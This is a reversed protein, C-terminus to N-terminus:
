LEYGRGLLPYCDPDFGVAYARATRAQGGLARPKVTATERDERVYTLVLIVAVLIFLICVAFGRPYVEPDPYGFLSLIISGTIPGGAALGGLMVM